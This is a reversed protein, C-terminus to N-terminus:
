AGTPHWLAELVIRTEPLGIRGSEAAPRVLELAQDMVQDHPPEITGSAPGAQLQLGASTGTLVNESAPDLTITGTTALAEIVQQQEQTQCALTTRGSAAMAELAQGLAQEYSILVRATGPQDNDILVLRSQDAVLQLEPASLRSGVLVLAECHAVLASIQRREREPDALSDLTVVTLEAADAAQQLRHVMTGASPDTLDPVVLGLLGSRGTNLARAALNPVYGLQESVQKVSAVTAPRLLHPANFARSVTSAAVGAKRAVEHITARGPM